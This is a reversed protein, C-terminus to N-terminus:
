SHTVLYIAVRCLQPAATSFHNLRKEIAWEMRNSVCVWVRFVRVWWPKLSGYWVYMCLAHWNPDRPGPDWPGPNEPGQDGPDVSYLTGYFILVLHPIFFGNVLIPLRVLDTVTNILWCYFTTVLNNPGFVLNTTVKYCGQWQATVLKQM